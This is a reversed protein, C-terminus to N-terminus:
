SVRVTRAPDVRSVFILPLQLLLLIALGAAVDALLIGPLNVSVPVYSVFYNEPNLRIWHTTGQILCFLLGLANGILIGKLVIRASVRLFVGSIAKDTMGLSKLTGITPVNRLLLILLGSIMNFAAVITMLVLIALVNFDILDLWDFLQPYRDAAAAAVLPSEDEATSVLSITGLEMAKSRSPAADRWRGELSVELASAQDATWGNLRQMDALSAIVMLKDGDEVPSQYIDRVTFRRIKLREEVFYSLMPDGPQLRLKEALRQPISVRLSVSDSDPVGKFIVGELVDGAKIIGTRYIVPTIERVGKVGELREYCSPRAPIPHDISYNGSVPDYMQIDGTAASIGNRIERRFGASVTVAIIIVLFSIAIAIVAMKGEFRLKGAIFSGANM